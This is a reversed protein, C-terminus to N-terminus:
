DLITGLRRISGPWQGRWSRTAEGRPRRAPSGHGNGGRPEPGRDPAALLLDRFVRADVREDREELLTLMSPLRNTAVFGPRPSRAWVFVDEVIVQGGRMGEVASVRSVARRGDPLRTMHVILDLASALQERVHSVPLEVDSMLAMTELRTLLDRPSNAHATSMSGEHGTNMAQLMDLAEGGRVEGVVIRDPRMRLANRVLARVTVEGAGEVNPPRAELSVVHPQPLRLEAADEITILRERHPIFASLVGLLTTKGTGTGGSVVINSKARVSAALFAMMPQTMAGMAILDDPGLPRLSFKRVTVVPGCLSLPPIIANVRSGDPLRADVYPSSEDVRLGLPAVIREILHLVQEEGEFLLGEVREVRGKREVYVDDAGNVMVESVEPDKLLREIPGLGVVEDSVQNVVETLLGAPLIAREERLVTMVEQRVRLRRESGALGDLGGRAEGLLRSRVLRRIRDPDM